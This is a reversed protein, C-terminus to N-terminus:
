HRETVDDPLLVNIIMGVITIVLGGLVADWWFNDVHFGVGLLGCVWSTLGLMMANVILLFLGLTFIIFPISLITLIPKIIANLVGFILAVLLTTLVKSVTSGTEALHIGPVIVSAFWLAVGNVLVRVVFGGM